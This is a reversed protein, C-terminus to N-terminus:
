RRRLIRLLIHPPFRLATRVRIENSALDSRVLKPIFHFSFSDPLDQLSNIRHHGPVAVCLM